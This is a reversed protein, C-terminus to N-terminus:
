DAPVTDLSRDWDVVQNRGADKARYLAVDARKLLVAGDDGDEPFSSVGLSLTVRGGPQSERGPVPCAEVRSRIAEALELAEPKAIGPALVVFEEGGYRCVLNPPPCGASVLSAVTKLLEDGALHGQTDNYNKFHDLDMFILSLSTGDRRSRELEEKLASKLSHRNFVGTLGDKHAMETLEKNVGQLVETHRMLRDMADRKQVLERHRDIAQNAARTIDSLDEFPKILFECAGGRLSSTAADVSAHSTMIVTVTEPDTVRLKELLDLGSMKGMVIDSIVVPFPDQQFLELAEEANAAEVVDHNDRRLVRGIVRRLTEEDDVVLIRM